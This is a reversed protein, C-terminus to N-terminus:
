YVPPILYRYSVCRQAKPNLAAVHQINRTLQGQLLQLRKGAAEDIPTLSFLAGNSAGCIIKTQPIDPDGTRTRRAVTLSSRYEVRAHFESRCLLYQGLKSEPDPGRTLLSEPIRRSIWTGHPDYDFVRIVGEEDCTLISLLGDTFFFDACTLAGPHPDKGLISLKYPDEQLCFTNLLLLQHAQITSVQFAVLWVSKVIDSIILLNKVTRLSTVYVGVDLFAVGVLREDQDFARV